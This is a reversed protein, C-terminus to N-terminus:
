VADDESGTTGDGQVPLLEDRLAKATDHTLGPLEIKTHQSGATYLKLTAVGYHRQLPGQSVDTHQIRIRPLYSTNHWIVGRAINIGTADVGYRLHRFWAAPYWWVLLPFFAVAVVILVIALWGPVPVFVANFISGMLLLCPFVLNQWRNVAISAPDVSQMQM